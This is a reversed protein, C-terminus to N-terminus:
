APNAPCNRPVAEPGGVLALVGLWWSEGDKVRMCRQYSPVFLERLQLLRDERLTRKTRDMRRGEQAPGEDGDDAHPIPSAPVCHRSTHPSWRGQPPSLCPSTTSGTDFGSDVPEAQDDDAQSAVRRSSGDGEGESGAADCALGRERSGWASQCGRGQGTGVRPCGNGGGGDGEDEDLQNMSTNSADTGRCLSSRPRGAPQLGVSGDSSDNCLGECENGHVGCWADQFDKGQASPVSRSRLMAPVDGRPSFSSSLPLRLLLGDDGDPTNSYADAPCLSVPSQRPDSSVLSLRSDHLSLRSDHLSNSSLSQTIMQWSGSLAPESMSGNRRQPVAVPSSVARLDDFTHQEDDDDDDNGGDDSFSSEPSAAIVVNPVVVRETAVKSTPDFSFEAGTIHQLFDFCFLFIEEGRGLRTRLLHGFALWDYAVTLYLLEQASLSQHIEGDAWLSMRLLSVFLPTRDWGSICHVLLGKADFDAATPQQGQRLFSLFVHLYNRTLTVLSWSRYRSWDIDPVLPGLQEPLKLEVNVDPHAAWDFALNQLKPRDRLGKFWEVGPYPVVAIDFDNYRGRADVKESSTVTFGFKIKREEVMLDCIYRVGLGRLLDIDCQRHRATVSEDTGARVSSTMQSAGLDQESEVFRSDLMSEGMGGEWPSGRGLVRGTVRGFYAHGERCQIEVKRALTASRCINVGRHLIVPVAFRARTRAFRGNHFLPSLLESDNVRHEPGNTKESELIIIDLPYNPCLDGDANPVTRVVYDREFLELCTEHISLQTDDGRKGPDCDAFYAILADLDLHAGVAAAAGDRPPM